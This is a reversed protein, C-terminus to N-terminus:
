VPWERLVLYISLGIKGNFGATRLFGYEFGEAGEIQERLWRQNRRNLGQGTGLLLLYTKDM